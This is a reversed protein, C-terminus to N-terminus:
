HYIMKMQYKMYDKSSSKNLSLKNPNKIYFSLLNIFNSFYNCWKLLDNVDNKM